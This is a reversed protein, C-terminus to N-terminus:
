RHPGDLGAQAATRLRCAPYETRGTRDRARAHLRGGAAGRIETAEPDQGPIWHRNLVRMNSTDQIPEDLNVPDPFHYLRVSVGETVLAVATKTKEPTILNLTGRDDDPGWRGWNKQEEFWELMQEHTVLREPLQTTPDPQPRSPQQAAMVAGEPDSCGSVGLALVGVGALVLGRKMLITMSTM